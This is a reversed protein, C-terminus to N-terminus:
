NGPVTTPPTSIGCESFFTQILAFFQEDDVDIDNGDVFTVGLSRGLCEAQEAELAVGYAEAIGFGLAQWESPGVVSGDDVDSTPDESIVPLPLTTGTLAFDPNSAGRALECQEVLLDEVASLARAVSDEAFAARSKAVGSDTAAVTPDWSVDDLAVVLQGYAALLVGLPDRWQRPSVDRLVAIRDAIALVAEELEISSTSDLESVAREARQRASAFLPGQACAQAPADSGCAVLMVLCLGVATTRFNQMRM